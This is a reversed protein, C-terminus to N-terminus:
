FTRLGFLVFTYINIYTLLIFCIYYCQCKLYIMTYYYIIIDHINLVLQGINGKERLFYLKVKYVNKYYKIKGVFTISDIIENLVLHMQWEKIFFSINNQSWMSMSKEQCTRIAMM